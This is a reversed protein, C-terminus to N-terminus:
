TRMIIWMFFMLSHNGAPNNIDSSNNNNKVIIWLFLWFTSLLYGTYTCYEFGKLTKVTENVSAAVWCIQFEMLYIIAADLLIQFAM